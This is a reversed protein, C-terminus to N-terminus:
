SLIRNGLFYLNDMTGSHSDVSTPILASDALGQSLSKESDHMCTVQTASDALCFVNNVVWTWTMQTSNGVRGFVQWLIIQKAKLRLKFFHQPKQHSILCVFHFGPRCMSGAESPFIGISLCFISGCPVGMCVCGTDSLRMQIKLHQLCSTHLFEEFSDLFYFSGKRLPRTHRWM